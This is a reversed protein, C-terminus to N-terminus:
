EQLNEVGSIFGFWRMENAKRFMCKFVSKIFMITIELLFSDFLFEVSSELKMHRLFFSFVLTLRTQFVIGGEGAEFLQIKHRVSFYSMERCLIQQFFAVSQYSLTSM